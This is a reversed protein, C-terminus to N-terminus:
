RSSGLGLSYDSHLASIICPESPPGLQRASVNWAQELVEFEPPYALQRIWGPDTINNFNFGKRWVFVDLAYNGYRDDRTIHFYISAGCSPCNPKRWLCVKCKCLARPSRPTSLSLKECDPSYHRLVFPDKMSWHPCVSLILPRLADAVQSKSPPAHSNGLKILPWTMIPGGRNSTVFPQLSRPTSAGCDHDQRQDISSSRIEDYSCQWHPCIWMRGSRGLCERQDSQQKLSDPSFCSIDHTTICSSCVARSPEIQRDRELMCLFILRESRLVSPEEVAHRKSNPPIYEHDGSRHHSEPVLHRERGTDVSRNRASLPRVPVGGLTAEISDGLNYYIRRCTQALSIISSAPLSSGIVLLLETPLHQLGKFRSEVFSMEPDADVKSAGTESDHSLPAREFANMEPEAFAKNKSVEKGANVLSSTGSIARHVSVKGGTMLLPFFNRLCRM